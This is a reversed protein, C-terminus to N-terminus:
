QKKLCVRCLGFLELSHETIKGVRPMQNIIKSILRDVNCHLFDSIQGCDHCVFHHHHQGQRRLEFYTHGRQLDIQKVLGNTKFAKLIRYVTALNVHKHLHDSIKKPSVPQHSAALFKLVALRSETVKYGHQRLIDELEYQHINKSM